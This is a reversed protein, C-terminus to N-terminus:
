IVSNLDIKKEEDDTLYYYVISYKEGVLDDTTYHELKAGDIIVPTYRTNYNKGKVNLFCGEYDGISVICSAGINSADLHKGCITNNNVLISSYKFPVIIDGIRKLEEYLAPRRKSSNSLAYGGGNVIRLKVQGFVEARHKPFNKRFSGNHKKATEEDIKIHLKIKQLMGLLKDFLSKEIRPLEIVDFLPSQGGIVGEGSRLRFQKKARLKLHPIECGYFKEKKYKFSILNPYQYILKSVDSYLKNYDRENTDTIGGKSYLTSVYMLDCCRIVKGFKEYNILTRQYDEVCLLEPKISKDNKTLYFSGYCFLLGEKMGDSKNFYENKTPPFGLLSCSSNQLTTECETLVDLLTKNNKLKIQKIDDFIWILIEDGFYDIIFNRVNMFGKPAVIKNIGDPVVYLDLQDEVVFLYVDCLPINNDVLIKITQKNITDYRNYSPIVIKM